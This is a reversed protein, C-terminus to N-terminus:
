QRVRGIAERLSAFQVPHRSLFRAAGAHWVKLSAPRELTEVEM